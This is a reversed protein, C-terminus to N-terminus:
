RRRVRGARSPRDRRSAASRRGARRPRAGSSARALHLGASGQRRALALLKTGHRFRNGQVKDYRVEVVLEPRVPAEELDGRAGATRSRSAASRRTRSCRCCARPSRRGAEAGRGRVLRRLRPRRRRPLPRAAADRDEARRAKWRLGVVVCDATKEEKVKVVGDRSGPLYPLASGRRSSATSAWRSSATSGAARTPSRRAHVAVHPLRRPADVRERREELPLKWVPEGDWLLVDFM